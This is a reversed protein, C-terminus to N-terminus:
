VTVSLCPISFSIVGAVTELSSVLFNVIVNVKQLDHLKVVDFVLSTVTFAISNSHYNRRPSARSRSVTHWPAPPLRPLETM